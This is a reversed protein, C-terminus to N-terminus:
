SIIGTLILILVVAVTLFVLLFFLIKISFNQKKIEEIKGNSSLLVEIISIATLGFLLDTIQYFKNSFDFIAFIIGLFLACISIFSYRKIRNLIIEMDHNTYNAIANILEKPEVNTNDKRKGDLIENIDVNYFEALEILIAIDPLSKGTEWRSISRNSINLKEALQEQTLGNHKRLDKLFAGIKTQDM